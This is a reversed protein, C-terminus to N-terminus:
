REVEDKEKNEKVTSGLSAKEEAGHIQESISPNNPRSEKEEAPLVMLKGNMRMFMEPTKFHESFQKVHEEELSAFDEESLGTVLFTGALIDYIHGEEDRLARNLQSGKLKGEEDCIIAVPEEFPYVAQIYGGVEHQLSELGPDIAKTYPRKGPEVVLVNIKEKEPQLVQELKEREYAYIYFNYDGKHPNLRIMYSYKETDARFGYEQTYNGQFASDPNNKGYAALAERNQLMGGYREDFRLLNVVKDFEQKFADTKLGPVHDDWTTFFGNGAAGMDGRLHGVCGSAELVDAKKTYSFAREEQIMARITMEM